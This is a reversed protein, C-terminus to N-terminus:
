QIRRGIEDEIEGEKMREEDEVGTRWRQKEVAQKDEARELCEKEM